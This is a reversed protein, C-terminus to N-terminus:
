VAEGRTMALFYGLFVAGADRDPASALVGDLNIGHKRFLDSDRLYQSNGTVSAFEPHFQTGLLRRDRDLFAQIATHPNRALIGAGSPIETVRDYHSQWVTEVPLAGPIGPPVLEVPLWGVEPGAPAKGVAGPGLHALCLLQHGYCIGLQPVGKESCRRILACADPTFTEGHTISLASGSHVLGSFDCPDIKPFPHGPRVRAIATPHDFRRAITDGSLGDVSYDVILIAKM